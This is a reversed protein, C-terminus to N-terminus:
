TLTMMSLTVNSTVEAVKFVKKIHMNNLPVSQFNQMSLTFKNLETIYMVKRSQILITKGGSKYYIFRVEIELIRLYLAYCSIRFGKFSHLLIHKILIFAEKILLIYNPFRLINLMNQCMQFRTNLNLINKWLGFTGCSLFKSINKFITKYM